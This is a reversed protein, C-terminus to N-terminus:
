VADLGLKDRLTDAAQALVRGEHQFQRSAAACLREAQLASSRARDVCDIVRHLETDRLVVNNGGRTDALSIATSAASPTPRADGGDGAAAPPPGGGGGRARKAQPQSSNRLYELYVATDEDYTDIDAELALNDAEEKNRVTAHLSSNLLHTSVKKRVEEPGNYSWAAARKWAPDSCEASLVCCKAFFVTVTASSAAASM